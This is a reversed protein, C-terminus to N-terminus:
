FGHGEGLGDVGERVSGWREEGEGMGVRVSAAAVELRHLVRWDESDLRPSPPTGTNHLRKWILAPDCM